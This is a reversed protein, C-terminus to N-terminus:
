KSLTGKSGDIHRSKLPSQLTGVYQRNHRWALSSSHPFCQTHFTIVLKVHKALTLKKTYNRLVKNTWTFNHTIALSQKLQLTHFLSRSIRFYQRTEVWIESLYAPLRLFCRKRSCRPLLMYQQFVKTCINVVCIIALLFCINFNERKWQKRKIFETNKLSMLSVVDTTRVLPLASASKACNQWCVYLYSSFDRHHGQWQGPNSSVVSRSTSIM